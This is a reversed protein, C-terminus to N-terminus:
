RGGRVVRGPRTGTLEDNRLTVVGNVLTALYGTAPQLLRKGGAPLDATLRPRGLQLHEFDIVNIDARRGVELLGRDTLGMFNATDFTQKKVLTEVAIRGTPRDRGWYSLLTTPFTADCVTGVHAGGDSLGCLSSPHTLMERVDDLNMNTYNYLPFYILQEGDNELMMDYLMAIPTIGRAQAEMFASDEVKPEYDPPTGLRFMRMSLMDIAALLQDALAPLKSGDGGVPEHTESLMAAKIEPRKMEAVQENLPLHSLKKYTPFGMFPHFTAELGLIVGIPRPAVQVHMNLGKANAAEVRRLIQRWQGPAQDRQMLSISMKHGDAHEAMAELMDFEPNFRDWSQQLDFDSVAQIVGHGLGKLSQALGILERLSAESAPTFDGDATRHNDSRGTSIGFAGAQIGERTLTRMLDVDAETADEGAIARDGMVYVRLADHPVHTGLDITHPLADLADMYEPFTEWTWPIGEALASGPIDEVGEMLRILRDRDAPRVPAFGVGCSGMIATTVGHMSSPAMEEDWSAQGDYHTHIDVFGPTVLAGDANIVQDATDAVEGMAVIRGDKIGIDARVSANGSGDVVTGGVIKLDLGM